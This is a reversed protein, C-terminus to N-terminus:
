NMGNWIHIAETCLELELMSWHVLARISELKDVTAM